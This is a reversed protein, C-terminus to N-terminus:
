HSDRTTTKHIYNISHLTHAKCMRQHAEGSKEQAGYSPACRNNTVSQFAVSPDGLTPEATQVDVPSSPLLATFTIPRTSHRASKETVLFQGSATHPLLRIIRTRSDKIYYLYRYHKLTWQESQHYMQRSQRRSILESFLANSKVWLHPPM